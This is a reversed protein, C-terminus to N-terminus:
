MGCLQRSVRHGGGHWSSRRGSRLGDLRGKQDASTRIGSILGGIRVAAKDTIESFTSPMPMPLNPSRRRRVPELSPRQSLLGLAEKELALAQRPEWETIDPLSPANIAPASTEIAGFLGMQPDAKEKQVRQGYEFAEELAAMMQSRRHGLSDFAGCKILSEVVRKNVRRL